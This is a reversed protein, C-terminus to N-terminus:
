PEDCQCRTLGVVAISVADITGRADGTPLDTERVM